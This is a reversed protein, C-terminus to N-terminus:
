NRWNMYLVISPITWKLDSYSFIGIKLDNLSIWDAGLGLIPLNSRLGPMGQGIIAAETGASFYVGIQKKQWGIKTEWVDLKRQLYYDVEADLELSGKDAPVVISVIAGIRVDDEVEINGSSGFVYRGYGGSAVFRSQIVDDNGSSFGLSYEAYSPIEPDFSGIDEVIIADEGKYGFNLGAEAFFSWASLPRWIVRLNPVVMYRGLGQILGHIGAQFSVRGEPARYGTWFSMDVMWSSEPTAFWGGGGLNGGVSWQSQGIPVDLNATVRGGLGGDSGGLSRFVLAYDDPSGIPRVWRLNIVGYPATQEKIKIGADAESELEGTHTWKLGVVYPRVGNLGLPLFSRAALKDNDGLETGAFLSAGEQLNYSISAFWPTDFEASVPKDTSANYIAQVKSIGSIEVGTRIAGPPAPVDLPYLRRFRPNQSAWSGDPQEFEAPQIIDPRLNRPLVLDPLILDQGFVKNTSILMM